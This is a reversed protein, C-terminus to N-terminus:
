KEIKFVRSVNSKNLSFNSPHRFDWTMELEFIGVEAKTEYESDEYLKSGKKGVKTAYFKRNQVTEFDVTESITSENINDFEREAITDRVITKAEEYTLQIKQNMKLNKM